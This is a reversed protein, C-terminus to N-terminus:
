PLLKKEKILRFDRIVFIIGGKVDLTVSSGIAANSTSEKEGFPLPVSKLPYKLGSSTIQTTNNFGYISIIEGPVTKLEVFGTYPLLISNEAVIFIKIKGFFKIVIGLNCFTHDLRSGTAGLLYVEKYKKQILFKLCKEVDTDNQREYKIIESKDKFYELTEDTVSDLDGIIFDPTLSLKRAYNAGGDACILISEKQLLFNIIKKQPPKGNALIVAQKM